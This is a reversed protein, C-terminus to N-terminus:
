FPCEKKQKTQVKHDKAVLDYFCEACYMKTPNNLEAIVYQKPRHNFPFVNAFNGCVSCKHPNTDKKSVTTDTKTFYRDKM